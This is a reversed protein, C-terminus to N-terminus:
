PVEYAAIYSNCECMGTDNVCQRVQRGSRTQADACSYGEPCEASTTCESGCFTGSDNYNICAGPEDQSISACDADASCPRCLSWHPSVCFSGEFNTAGAPTWCTWNDPCPADPSCVQSCVTNGIHPVCANSECQEDTNCGRGFGVQQEADPHM